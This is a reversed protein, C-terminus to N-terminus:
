IIGKIYKNNGFVTLSGDVKSYLTHNSSDVILSPLGWYVTRGNKGDDITFITAMSSPMARIM